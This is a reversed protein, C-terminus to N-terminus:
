EGPFVIKTGTIAEAFERLGDVIRPGPRTCYNSTVVFVQGNKVAKLNKYADAAMFADKSNTEGMGSDLLIIEPDASVLQEQSMNVWTVPFDSTINKGGCMQILEFPFSGPGGTWNGADGYSMAYYVTKGGAAKAVADLVAKEKAKMDAKVAEAQKQAGTLGAILDISKYVDEYTTAEASVVNVGLEKMKGIADKQLKNGGLVLDPKLSVVTELNPGNFDGVKAVNKVADPYDSIADVGVLKDGLGLAYVIETDSPTLSIIRTPLKQKEVTNGLFDTLAAQATPTPTAACGTAALILLTSFLLALTRKM